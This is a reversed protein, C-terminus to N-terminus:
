PHASRADGAADQEARKLMSQRDVVSRGSQSEDRRLHAVLVDLDYGHEQAIGDKIQWLERIIEDPM